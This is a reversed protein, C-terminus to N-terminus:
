ADAFHSRAVVLALRGDLDDSRPDGTELEFRDVLRDGGHNYIVQLRNILERRVRDVLQDSEEGIVFSEMERDRRGLSSYILVAQLLGVSVSSGGDAVRRAYDHWGPITEAVMEQLEDEILGRSRIDAEVTAIIRDTVDIDTPAHRLWRRKKRESRGHPFDFTLDEIAETLDIKAAANAFGSRIEIERDDLWRRDDNVSEILARTQAITSALVRDLVEDQYRGRDRAADVLRRALDKVALSPVSHAGETLHHEPVRVVDTVLGEDLLRSKFDVYAGASSSTYRNLVNIVPAGRSVARRLVEWPILDAYRLASTVFVVVDANDILMEAIARHETSTSDIDPTDVLAVSDFIPAAGVAVECDVGGITEFRPANLHSTLVIPGTTTPRIPGTEAFEHGSVSNVLTSKGSGTPGAFVVCLPSTPDVLRPIVYSRITRVLQDRTPDSSKHRLLATRLDLSELALALRELDDVLGTSSRVAVM